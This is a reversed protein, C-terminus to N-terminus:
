RQIGSQIETQETKWENQEYSINKRKLVNVTWKKPPPEFGDDFVLFGLWVSSAIENREAARSVEDQREAFFYNLCALNWFSELFDM